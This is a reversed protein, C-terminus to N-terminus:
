QGIIVEVSSRELVTTKLKKPVVTKRFSNNLPNWQIKGSWAKPSLSWKATSRTWDWWCDASTGFKRPCRNPVCSLYFRSNTILSSLCSRRRGCRRSWFLLLNLSWFLLEVRADRKKACKTSTWQVVVVHFRRIQRKISSTSMRRRIKRWRKSGSYFGYSNLGLFLRRGKLYQAPGFLRSWTQFFAFENKQRRKWQRRRPGQKLDRSDQSSLAM